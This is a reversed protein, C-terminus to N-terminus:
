EFMDGLLFTGGTPVNRSRDIGVVRGDVDERVFSTEGFASVPPM